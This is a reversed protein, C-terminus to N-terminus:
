ITTNIEKMVCNYYNKNAGVFYENSINIL